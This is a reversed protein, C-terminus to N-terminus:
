NSTIVSYPGLKVSTQLFVGLNDTKWNVPQPLANVGIVHGEFHSTGRTTEMHWYRGGIGVSLVDSLQYSILGDLQVGWGTGDEPISGNFAGVITDTPDIRAWHSDAGSVHVFPLYAADLSFRARNIAVAADVGVRISNWDNVQTIVKFADPIGGACVNPNAAIEGCGYANVTERMFHYGVFAGVHFDPGQFIKIGGDISGYISSGNNTASLTASYPDIAPPFDEDKLKGEFLGVGGAYGKLFWGNNFDFRTFAEGGFISLKDYTLRSVLTTGAPDYLSKGTSGNGYWFRLGFEGVYFAPADLGKFTWGSTSAPAVVPPFPSLDAARVTVGVPAGIALVSVVSALIVQISKINKV